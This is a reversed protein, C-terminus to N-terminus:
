SLATEKVEVPKYSDPVDNNQLHLEIDIAREDSHSAAKASIVPEPHTYIPSDDEKKHGQPLVLATYVHSSDNGATPTGKSHEDVTSYEAIETHGNSQVNEKKEPTETLDVKEERVISDPESYLNADDGKGSTL